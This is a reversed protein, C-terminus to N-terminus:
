DAHTSGFIELPQEAFAKKSKNMIKVSSWFNACVVSLGMKREYADM